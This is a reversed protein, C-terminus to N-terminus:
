SWELLLHYWKKKRLPTPRQGKPGPPRKGKPGDNVHVGSGGSSGIGLCLAILCIILIIGLM